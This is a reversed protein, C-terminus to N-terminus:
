GNGDLSANGEGRAVAFWAGATSRGIGPLAM